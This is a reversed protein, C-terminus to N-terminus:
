LIGKYLILEIIIVFVIIAIVVSPKIEFKTKIDESYSVIGGGSSPLHIRNDKAMFILIPILYLFTKIQFKKLLKM